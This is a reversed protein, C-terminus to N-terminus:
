GSRAPPSPPPSRSPRRSSPAPPTSTSRAWGCATSDGPSSQTWPRSAKAFPRSTPSVRGPKRSSSASTCPPCSYRPSASTELRTKPAKGRAVIGDNEVEHGLLCRHSQESQVRARVALRVDLRDRKGLGRVPDLAQRRGLNGKPFIRNPAEDVPVRRRPPLEDDDERALELDAQSVARLVDEAGAVRAQDLVRRSLPVRRSDVAVLGAQRRRNRQLLLSGSATVGTAAVLSVRMAVLIRKAGLCDSATMSIARFRVGGPKSSTTASM